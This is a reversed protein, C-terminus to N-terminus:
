LVKTRKVNRGQNRRSVEELGNRIASVEVGLLDFLHQIGFVQEEISLPVLILVTLDIEMAVGCEKALGFMDNMIATAETRHGSGLLFLFNSCLFAFYVDRTVDREDFIIGTALLNSTEVWNSFCIPCTLSLLEM